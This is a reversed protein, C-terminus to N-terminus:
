KVVTIKETIVRNTAEIKVIFVGAPLSSLDFSTNVQNNISRSLIVKGNLDMIVVTNMNEGEIHLIGETPNPYISFGSIKLDGLGVIERNITFDATAEIGNDDEVIITYDGSELGTFPGQTVNVGDDIYSTYPAIGGTIDFQVAGNPTTENTQHDINTIDIVLQAPEVIIFTILTDCNGNNYTILLEYEGEALDNVSSSGTENFGNTSTWDYTFPGNGVTVNVSADGDDLGNGTIDNVELDFEIEDPAPLNMNCQAMAGTMHMAEGTLMGECLDTLMFPDSAGSSHTLNTYVMNQSGMIVLEAEGDCEDYCSIPNTTVLCEFVEIDVSRLMGSGTCHTYSDGAIYEYTDPCLGNIQNMGSNGPMPNGAQYWEFTNPTYGGSTILNIEGTCSPNSFTYTEIISHPEVTPTILYNLSASMPDFNIDVEFEYNNSGDTATFHLTQVSNCLNQLPFDALTYNNGNFTITEVFPNENCTNIDLEASCGDYAPKVHIYAHMFAFSNGSCLLLLLIFLKKM